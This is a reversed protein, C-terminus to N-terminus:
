YTYISTAGHVITEYVRGYHIHKVSLCACQGDHPREDARGRSDLVYVSCCSMCVCLSLCMVRSTTQFIM